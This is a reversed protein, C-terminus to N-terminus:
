EGMEALDSFTENLGKKDQPMFIEGNVCNLMDEEEVGMLDCLLELSEKSSVSDSNQIFRQGMRNKLSMNNQNFM